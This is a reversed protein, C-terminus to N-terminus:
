IAFNVKKDTLKMRQRYLSFLFYFDKPEKCINHATSFPDELKKNLNECKL